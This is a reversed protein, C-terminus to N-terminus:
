YKSGLNSATNSFTRGFAVISRARRGSQVREEWLYMKVLVCAVMFFCLLSCLFELDYRLPRHVHADILLRFLTVSDISLAIFELPLHRSSTVTVVLSKPWEESWVISVCTSSSSLLLACQIHAAPDYRSSSTSSHHSALSAHRCPGTALWGREQPIEGLWLCCSFRHREEELEM